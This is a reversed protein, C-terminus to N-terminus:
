EPKSIQKPQPMYRLTVITIDDTQMEESDGGQHEIIAKEIIETLEKSNAEPYNGIIDILRQEGFQEDTEPSEAEIVGDTYVIVRDGPNLKIFDERITHEFIDGKDFGLAIGNPNVKEIELDEYRLVYMPNHGASAASLTMDKTNLVMYFATVFMGRKIDRTIHRNARSLVEKPMLSQAAEYRLITRAMTMVMAGPLGKGSVDAVIIGIHDEDIRIFDYYDGGVEKAPNYYAHMDVNPITPISEPLLQVVVEETIDIDHKYKSFVLALEKASELNSCMMDITKGLVWFEDRSRIQTRIKYNGQAIQKVTEVLHNIPNTVAHGLFYSVIFGIIMALLTLIILSWMLLNKSKELEDNDYEVIVKYEVDEGDNDINNIKFTTYFQRIGSVPEAIDVNGIKDAYHSIKSPTFKATKFEDTRSRLESVRGIFVGKIRQSQSTLPEFFSEYVKDHYKSQIASIIESYSDRYLSIAKQCERSLSNDSHASICYTYFSAAIKDAKFNIPASDIESPTANIKISDSGHQYLKHYYIATLALDRQVRSLEYYVPDLEIMKLNKFGDRLQKDINENTSISDLTTDFKDLYSSRIKNFVFNLRDSTERTKLRSDVFNYDYVTLLYNQSFSSISNTYIAGGSKIEKDLANNAIFFVIVFFFLLAIANLGTISLMIKQLLAMGEIRPAHFEVPGIVSKEDKKGPLGKKPVLMGAQPVRASHRPSSGQQAPLRSSSGPKRLMAGESSIKKKRRKGPNPKFNRKSKFDGNSSSNAQSSSSPTNRNGKRRAMTKSVSEM